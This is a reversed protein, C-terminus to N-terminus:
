DWSGTTEVLLRGEECRPCRVWADRADLQKGSVGTMIELHASGCNTCNPVAAPVSGDFQDLAQRVLPLLYRARQDGIVADAEIQVLDRRAAKLAEDTEQDTNPVLASVLQRCDMCIALAYHNRLFMGAIGSGGEHLESEVHYNCVPCPHVTLLRGM